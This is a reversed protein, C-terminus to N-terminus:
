GEEVGGSRVSAALAGIGGGAADRSLLERAPGPRRAPLSGKGEEESVRLAVEQLSRRHAAVRRQALRGSRRRAAGRTGSQVRFGGIRLRLDGALRQQRIRLNGGARRSCPAERTSFQRPLGGRVESGGGGDDRRPGRLFPLVAGRPRAAEPERAVAAARARARRPRAAAPGRPEPHVVASRRGIRRPPSCDNRLQAARRREVCPFLLGSAPHPCSSRAKGAVPPPRLGSCISPASCCRWGPSSCSFAILPYLCSCRSM